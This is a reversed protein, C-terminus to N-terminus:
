IIALFGIIESGIRKGHPFHGKPANISFCLKEYPVPVENVRWGVQDSFKEWIDYEYNQNGGLDRYIKKQVSFGFSNKSYERWLKDIILLDERPFNAIDTPRFYREYERNSIKLMAYFTFEDAEQLYGEELLSQLSLYDFRDTIISKVFSTNENIKTQNDYGTITAKERSKTTIVKRQRLKEELKRLIENQKRLLDQYYRREEDELRWKFFDILSLPLKVQESETIGTKCWNVFHECNNLLLHYDREGLRSEARLMVLNPHDCDDYIWTNIKKGQSFEYVSVRCVGEQTYHIVTGDGCDIGHHTYSIFNFDNIYIHDGRAM